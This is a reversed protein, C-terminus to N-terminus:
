SNAVFNGDANVFGDVEVYSGTLLQNIDVTLGAGSGSVVATKAGSTFQYGSGPNIVSVGTAGGGSSVATIRLTAGSGGGGTVKVADGVHYGTGGTNVTATLVEGALNVVLSPGTGSLLQVAFDGVFSPNASFTDVREIFGLVDDMEGFGQSGSATVPVLTMVPTVNGTVQGTSDLDISHRLDFDIKLGIVQGKTVTLAPQVNVTPKANSFTVSVTKVPPDQTPDYVIMTAPSFSITAQNYTGEAINNISLVTSFEKLAAFNVRIFA